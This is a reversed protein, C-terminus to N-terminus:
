NDERPKKYGPKKQKKYYYFLAPTTEQKINDRKQARKIKNNITYVM